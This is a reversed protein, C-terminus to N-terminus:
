HSNYKAYVTFSTFQQQRTLLRTVPECEPSWSCLAFKSYTPVIIGEEIQLCSWDWKWQEFSQKGLASYFLFTTPKIKAVWLGTLLLLALPCEGEKGAARQIVLSKQQLMVAWLNAQAGRKRGEGIERGARHRISTKLVIEPKLIASYVEWGAATERPILSVSM